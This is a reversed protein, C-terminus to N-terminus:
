RGGLDRGRGLRGRKEALWSGGRLDGAEDAAEAGAGGADFGRDRDAATAGDGAPGAGAFLM